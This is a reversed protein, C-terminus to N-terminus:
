SLDIYPDNPAINHEDQYRQLAGEVDSPLYADRPKGGNGGTDQRCPCATPVSQERNGERRESAGTPDRVRAVGRVRRILHHYRRM